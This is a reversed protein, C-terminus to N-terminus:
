KSLYAYFLVLQGRLGGNVLFFTPGQFFPWWGPYERHHGIRPPEARFPGKKPKLGWNKLLQIACDVPYIVIWRILTLSVMASDLPYHNIQQIANDMKQVVPILNIFLYLNKSTYSLTLRYISWLLSLLFKHSHFLRSFQRTKHNIWILVLLCHM